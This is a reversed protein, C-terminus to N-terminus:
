IMCSIKLNRPDEKEIMFDFNLSCSSMKEILSEYVSEENMDVLDLPEEYEVYEEEKDVKCGDDNIGHDSLEGEDIVIESAKSEKDVPNENNRDLYRDSDFKLPETEKSKDEKRSGVENNHSSAYYVFAQEPNEMCYQTDHPYSFIDCSFTIKNVQVSSKPALNAEMLRQVQNELEILHRDFANPVDQPLSIAKVLKASDRPDNVPRNISPKGQPSISMTM